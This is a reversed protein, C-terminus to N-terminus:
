PNTEKKPKPFDIVLIQKSGHGILTIKSEFKRGDAKRISLLREGPKFNLTPLHGLLNIIADGVYNGDVYIRVVEPKFPTVPLPGTTEKPVFYLQLTSTTPQTQLSVSTDDALAPPTVMSAIALTLLIATRCIM